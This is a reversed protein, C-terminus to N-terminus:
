REDRRALFARMRDVLTTAYELGARKGDPDNLTARLPQMDSQTLEYQAAILCLEGLTPNGPLVPMSGILRESNVPKCREPEPEQSPQRAADLAAFAQRLALPRIVDHRRAAEAVKELAAIREQAQEARLVAAKRSREEELRAGELREARAKWEDREKEASEAQARRAEVDDALGRALRLAEAREERLRDVGAASLVAQEVAVWRALPQSNWPRYGEVGGVWGYFAAKGLEDQGPEKTDTMPKPIAISEETDGAARKWAPWSRAQEAVADLGRKIDSTDYRPALNDPRPGTGTGSCNWCAMEDTGNPVSGTGHCKACTM